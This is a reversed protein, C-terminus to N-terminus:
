VFSSPARAFSRACAASCFWYQKAGFWGDAAARRPDVQMQCVPDIVFQRSTDSLAIRYLDVRQPLNKLKVMGLPHVECQRASAADIGQVVTASCLIEGARAQAAIRAAVNITSGFYRGRRCLANGHHLGTRLMPFDRMGAVQRYLAAISQLAAGAHPFVLFANDGSLEQVKGLSGVASQILGTFGDVLDAAASEGHSETLASYGAIDVFCFTAVVQQDPEAASPGSAAAMRINRASSDVM